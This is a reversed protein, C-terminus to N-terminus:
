NDKLYKLPPRIQKMMLHPLESHHESGWGPTCRPGQLESCEAKRTPALSIANLTVRRITSPGSEESLAKLVGPEGQPPAASGWEWRENVQM